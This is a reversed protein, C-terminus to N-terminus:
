DPVALPPGFTAQCPFLHSPYGLGEVRFRLGQVRVRVRSVPGQVRFWLGLGNVRFGLELSEDQVM